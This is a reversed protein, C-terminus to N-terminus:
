PPMALWGTVHSAVAAALVKNGAPNLHFDMPALHLVANRGQARFTPTLDHFEIGLEACRAELAREITLSAAPGYVQTYAPFFEFVLHMGTRDCFEKIKALVFLYNDLAGAVRDPFPEHLVLGDGDRFVADFLAANADFEDGGPIDYRHAAPAAEAAGGYQPLLLRYYTDVVFEALASKTLLFQAVQVPADHYALLEDRTKGIIDKIDNTVFTLVVVDPALPAVNRKLIAFEKDISGGAHAADVVDADWGARRLDARLASPYTDENDVFFGDTISDGLCAIRLKRPPKPNEPEPSRFGHSDTDVVYPIPGFSMRIRSSEPYLGQAGPIFSYFTGRPRDFLVRLACEMGGLLLATSLVVAALAAFGKRVM